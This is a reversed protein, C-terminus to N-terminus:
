TRSQSPSLLTPWSPPTAQTETFSPSHINVLHMVWNLYWFSWHELGRKRIGRYLYDRTLYQVSVPVEVRTSMIGGLDDWCLHSNITFTSFSAQECVDMPLRLSIKPGALLRAFAHGRYERRSLHLLSRTVRHGLRVALTM